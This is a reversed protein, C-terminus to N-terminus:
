CNAWHCVAGGTLYLM